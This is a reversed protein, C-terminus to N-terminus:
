QARRGEAYPNGGAAEWATARRFFRDWAWVYLRKARPDPHKSLERMLNDAEEMLMEARKLHKKARRGLTVIHTDLVPLNMWGGRILDITSPADLFVHRQKRGNKRQESKLRDWKTLVRATTPTEHTLYYHFSQHSRFPTKM